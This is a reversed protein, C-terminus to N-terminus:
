RENEVVEVDCRAGNATHISFMKSGPYMRSVKVNHFGYDVLFKKAFAFAANFENVANTTLELREPFNIWKAEMGGDPVPRAAELYWAASITYSKKLAFKETHKNYKM